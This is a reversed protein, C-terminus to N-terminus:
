SIAAGHQTMAAAGDAYSPENLLLFHVVSYIDDDKSEGYALRLSAEVERREDFVTTANKAAYNMYAKRLVAAFTSQEVAIVAARGIVADSETVKLTLVDGVSAQKYWKDGKRATSTVEGRPLTANAQLFLMDM